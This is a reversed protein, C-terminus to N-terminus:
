CVHAVFSVKGFVGCVNQDKSPSNLDFLALLGNARLFSAAQMGKKGEQINLIISLSNEENERWEVSYTFSMDLFPFALIFLSYSRCISLSCLRPNVM